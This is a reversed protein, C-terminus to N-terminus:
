YTFNIEISGNLFPTSSTSFVPDEYDSIPEVLGALLVYEGTGGWTGGLESLHGILPGSGSFSDFIIALSAFLAPGCIYM